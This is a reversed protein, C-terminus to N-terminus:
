CRPPLWYPERTITNAMSGNLAAYAPTPSMEDDFPLPRRPAGDYRPYDEQLWTYRDSLGFTILSIVAPEVLATDLYTHYVDAIAADRPKVKAPLSDDLVDMETILIKLGRDAVASLFARYADADFADAFGDAHLHAQIGLAHVPVGDALLGHLMDLVTARKDAALDGGDDTEFGYDNYLLLADPDADHARYFSDAIYTPGITEYWPVDTRVGSTDVAENVVIWAAVRGRYRGVVRDITTFMLDKAEQPKMGWLDDDTWGEGFGEDWVLHAGLVLMAQRHAFDIIEDAHEFKLGSDPTPRLRWWLLDDETFLIGAQQAFLKRYEPDSLQWTAASSGYVLGRQAAV